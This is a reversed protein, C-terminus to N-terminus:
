RQSLVAMEGSSSVGLIETGALGIAQSDPTGQRTTFVEVPHGEWAASYLITLGDPAFRAQTVLGRRYTLLHYYPLPKEVARKGAFFALAGVVLVAAALV